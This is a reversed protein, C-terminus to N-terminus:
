RLLKRCLLQLLVTSRFAAARSFTSCHPKHRSHITKPLCSSRHPQHRSSTSYLSARTRVRQSCYSVQAQSAQLAQRRKNSSTKSSKMSLKLRAQRSITKKSTVVTPPSQPIQRFVIAWVRWTKCLLSNNNLFVSSYCMKLVIKAVKRSTPTIQTQPPSLTARTYNHLHHHSSSNITITTDSIEKHNHSRSFVRAKALSPSTEVKAPEELSIVTLHSVQSNVSTNALIPLKSNSSIIMFIWSHTPSSLSFVLKRIWYFQKSSNSSNSSTSCVQRHRNLILNTSFKRSSFSNLNLNFLRKKASSM